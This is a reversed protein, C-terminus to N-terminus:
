AAIKGAEAVVRACAEACAKCVAHKEQHKRCETECDKCVSAALKAMEPLRASNTSALRLLANAVALMDNVARACGGLSTDGGALLSHCHPLCAEGARICDSVAAILGGAAASKHEDHEGARAAAATALMTGAGILVDRRRM